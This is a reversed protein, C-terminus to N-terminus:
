REAGEPSLDVSPSGAILRVQKSPDTAAKIIETKIKETKIREGEIQLNQKGQKVLHLIPREVIKDNMNRKSTHM